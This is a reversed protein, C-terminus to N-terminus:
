GICWRQSAAVPTGSITWCGRNLDSNDSEERRWTQLTPWRNQQELKVNVTTLLRSFVRDSEAANKTDVAVLIGLAFTTRGMDQNVILGINSHQQITGRLQGWPAMGDNPVTRQEVCFWRDTTSDLLWFGPYEQRFETRPPQFLWGSASITIGEATALGTGMALLLTATQTAPRRIFSVPAWRFGDLPVRPGSTFVLDKPFTAQQLPFTRWRVEVPTSTILRTDLGLLITLCLAEDQLESTDRYQCANWLKIIRHGGGQQRLLAIRWPFDVFETFVVQTLRFFNSDDQLRQIIDTMLNVAGDVFQLLVKVGLVAEQLTWLRRLWSSCSLRALQEEIPATTSTAALESDLVLVATANRYVHNMENIARLRYPQLHPRYNSQPICLTDIWFPTSRNGSVQDVLKQLRSLQCRPLANSDQNGLGEIWVHSRAVYQSIDQFHVASLVLVADGSGEELLQVVPITDTLVYTPILTQYQALETGPVNMVRCFDETCGGAVHDKQWLRPRFLSAFYMGTPTMLKSLMTIDSPCWGSDSMRTLVFESRQWGLARSSPWIRKKARTLVLGLDMISLSIETYARMPHTESEAGGRCMYRAVHLQTESLMADFTQVTISDSHLEEASLNTKRQQLYRELNSTTLIRRGTTDSVRTFDKLITAITHQHGLAASLLGFYLWQQLFAAVARPRQQETFDFTGALLNQREWGARAPFGDFGLNDYQLVAPEYERLYEIELPPFAPNRVEPLHDM